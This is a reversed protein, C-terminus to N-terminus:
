PARLEVVPIPTVSVDDFWAKGRGNLVIDLRLVYTPSDDPVTVVTELRQWRTSGSLPSSAGRLAVDPTSPADERPRSPVLQWALFASGEVQRVKVSCSLVYGQGGNVTLKQRCRRWESDAEDKQEISLCRRGSPAGWREWRYTVNPGLTHSLSVIDETRWPEPNYVSWDYPMGADGSEFGGNPVLDGGPVSAVEGFELDDVWISGQEEELWVEPRVLAAQDALSLEAWFRAWRDISPGGAFRRYEAGLVNGETDFVMVRVSPAPALADNGDPPAGKYYFSLAYTKGPELPVPEPSRLIVRASDGDGSLKASATGSHAEATDSEARAPPDVVEVEWGELGDEFGTSVLPRSVGAVPEPPAQCGLLIVVAVGLAVRTTLKGAEEIWM